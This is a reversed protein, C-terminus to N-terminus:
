FIKKLDISFNSFYYIWFLINAGISILLFWSFSSSFIRALFSKPRKAIEVDEHHENPFRGPAKVPDPHTAPKQSELAGLPPRPPIFTRSTATPPQQINVKEDDEDMDDDRPCTPGIPDQQDLEHEEKKLEYAWTNSCVSCRLTRGPSLLSKEVSYQSACSPCTILTNRM